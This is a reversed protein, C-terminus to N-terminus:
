IGEPHLMIKIAERKQFTEFAKEMDKLAYHHTIMPTVEVRGDQILDLCERFEERTYCITGHIDIESRVVKGLNVPPDTHFLGTIWYHGTKKLSNMAIPVLAAAGACDHVFDLMEGHTIERVREVADEEEANITHTAGLKMAMELRKKDCSAGLVIITKAGRLKLLQTAYLGIPGPGLVMVTDKSTIPMHKVTRYASAVPDVAAGFDYSTTDRLKVLVKAPVRVYEAFAGDVHIGTEVLNDCLPENGEICYKCNGCGIVICASVRDGIKWGEVRSGVEVIDGAFEHGPIMPWPIVRTGALIPGDTGCFGVSKVKVVVDEPRCVPKPVDKIAFGPGSHEKVVALM